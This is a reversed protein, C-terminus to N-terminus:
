DDFNNDEGISHDKYPKTMNLFDHKQIRDLFSQVAVREYHSLSLHLHNSNLSNELFEIQEFPTKNALSHRDLNNILRSEDSFFLSDLLDSLVLLQSEAFSLQRSPAFVHM